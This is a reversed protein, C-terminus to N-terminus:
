FDAGIWRITSPPPPPHRRLYNAADVPFISSIKADLGMRNFNTDSAFIFAALILFAAVGFVQYWSEAPERNSLESPSDVICAAAVICIFWSDRMMRFGVVTAMLLLALKFPDIKKNRGLAFYAAGTLLVQLYHSPVQFSEDGLLLAFFDEVASRL